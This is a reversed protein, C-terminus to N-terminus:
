TVTVPAVADPPAGVAKLWKRPWQRWVARHLWQLSQPDALLALKQKKKLYRPGGHLAVQRVKERARSYDHGTAALVELHVAFLAPDILLRSIPDLKRDRQVMAENDDHFLQMRELVRPTRTEEPILLLGLSRAKQGIRASSLLISIPVSFILSFFIPTLWWFLGPALTWTAVAAALGAVTHGGHADFAEHLSIASDSRRQPGWHVSHGMLTVAVFTAHFAMLIPAMLVSVITEIFVSVAARGEGGHAALKERNMLLLLFSWFKPLLLLTMTGAFLALSRHSQLLTITRAVAGPPPAEDEDMADAVAPAQEVPHDVAVVVADPEAPEADAEADEGPTAVIEELTQPAVEVLAAPDIVESDPKDPMPTTAAVIGGVLMFLLWLPSSLYSMAGMGLHIRSIPHFGYAFVLRLHQLNGQCWRQDRKAFDILTTPCEEYSGPLDHAIQVKYGARRILAAEVFDHSLIEGGLPAKGPLDPLGCYKIFAETRIIANHGYYNGDVQTWLAFGTTFIEGYVSAAFQQCRAFLSGRNVPVPPAQLIGIQDDDEMRRVMEVLTSGAMVSDADLILFHKYHAGWRRCWDSINGAKRHLNRHRRRYFVQGGQGEVSAKFRAWMQEEAIWKDPDTTDSLVFIDFQHGEGTARLSEHIAALGAFTRTSDENYVPMLLATRPLPGKNPAVYSRVKIVAHPDYKRVCQIFGMTATWFSLSIWVFLVVFLVVLVGDLFSFGDAGFLDVFIWTAAATTAATLLILVLRPLLYRQRRPHADSAPM